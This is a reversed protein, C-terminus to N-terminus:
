LYVQKFSNKATFAAKHRYNVVHQLKEDGSQGTGSNNDDANDGNYEQKDM